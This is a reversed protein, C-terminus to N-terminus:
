LTQKCSATNVSAGNSILEQMYDFDIEKKTDQELTTFYVFLSLAPDNEDRQDDTHTHTHTHTHTRAHTHTIYTAYPKLQM